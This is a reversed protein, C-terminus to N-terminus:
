GGMGTFGDERVDVPFDVHEGRAFRVLAELADRCSTRGDFHRGFDDSIVISGRRHRELVFGVAAGGDQFDLRYRENGLATIGMLRISVTYRRGALKLPPSGLVVSAISARRRRQRLIRPAEDAAFAWKPFLFTGHHEYVESPRAPSPTYASTTPHLGDVTLQYPFVRMRPDIFRRSPEQTAAARRRRYFLAFDRPAEAGREPPLRSSGRACPTALIAARRRCASMPRSARTVSTVSPSAASASPRCAERTRLGARGATAYSRAHFMGLRNVAIQTSDSMSATVFSTSATVFSASATMFSTGATVFSTSATVRKSSSLALSELSPPNTPAAHRACAPNRLGGFIAGAVLGNRRGIRGTGYGAYGTGGGVSRGSRAGDPRQNPPLRQDHDAAGEGDALRQRRGPGLRSLGAGTNGEKPRREAPHGREVEDRAQTEARHAGEDRAVGPRAVAGEVRAPEPSGILQDARQAGGSM